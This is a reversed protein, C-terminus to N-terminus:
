LNQIYEEASVVSDAPSSNHIGMVKWQLKCSSLKLHFTHLFEVNKM